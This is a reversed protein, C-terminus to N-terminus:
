GGATMHRAITLAHSAGAKGAGALAPPKRDEYYAPINSRLEPSVDAFKYDALKDLLKDYALDAGAYEGAATPCSSAAPMWM